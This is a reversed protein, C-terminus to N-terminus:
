FPLNEGSGDAGEPASTHESSTGSGSPRGGILFLKKSKVVEAPMTVSEGGVDKSYKNNELEGQIMIERGKQVHEILGSDEKVWHDVTFFDSQAKLSGDDQKQRYTRQSAIRFSLFGANDTIKRFKPDTAVRGLITMFAPM